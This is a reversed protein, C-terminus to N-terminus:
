IYIYIYIYIISYLSLCMNHTTLAQKNTQTHMRYTGRYAHPFCADRPDTPKSVASSTSKAFCNSFEMVATCTASCALTTFSYSCCAQGMEQWRNDAVLIAPSWLKSPHINNRKGWFFHSNLRSLKLDKQQYTWRTTCCMETSCDSFWASIALMEAPASALDLSILAAARLSAKLKFCDMFAWFHGPFSGTTILFTTFVCIPHQHGTKMQSGLYAWSRFARSKVGAWILEENKKTIAWIWLLPCAWGDNWFLYFVM